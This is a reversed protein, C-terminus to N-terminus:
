AFASRVRPAFRGFPRADARARVDISPAGTM